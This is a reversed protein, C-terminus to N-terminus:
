EKASPPTTSTPQTTPKPRRRGNSPLIDTMIDLHPTVLVAAEGTLQKGVRHATRALDVALFHQYRYNYKLVDAFAQTEEFLLRYEAATARYIRMQKPTASSSQQWLESHELGTMASDIYEPRVAQAADVRSKLRHTPAVLDPMTNRVARVIAVRDETSLEANNILDIIESVTAM